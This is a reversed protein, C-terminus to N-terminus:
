VVETFRQMLWRDRLIGHMRRQHEVEEARAQWLLDYLRHCRPCRARLRQGDIPEVQNYEPDLPNIHAAHLYILYRAAGQEDTILTRDAIGCDVCVLGDRLKARRSPSDEKRQWNPYISQHTKVRSRMM